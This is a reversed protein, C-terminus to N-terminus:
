VAHKNYYNIFDDKSVPTNLSSMGFLFKPNITLDKSKVIVTINENIDKIEQKVALLMGLSDERDRPKNVEFILSEKYDEENESDIHAHFMVEIAWIDEPELKDLM